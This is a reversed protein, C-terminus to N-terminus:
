LRCRGACHYQPHDDALALSSAPTLALFPPSFPPYSSPFRVKRRGFKNGYFLAVACLPFFPLFRVFPVLSAASNTLRLTPPRSSRPATREKSPLMVLRSPRCSSGVRSSVPCSVQNFSRPSLLFVAFPPLFPRLPSLSLAINSLPPYLLRNADALAFPFAAFPLRFSRSRVRTTVSFLSLCPELGCSAASITLRTACRRCRPSSEVQNCAVQLPRLMSLSFSLSAQM